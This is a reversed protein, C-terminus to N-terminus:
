EVWPLRDIAREVSALLEDRDVGTKVVVQLGNYLVFLFNALERATEQSFDLQQSQKIAEEFINVFQERNKAVFGLASLCVGAMETTSNVIYCGKIQDNAHKNELDITPILLNKLSTKLDPQDFLYARLYNLNEEQYRKLTLDYLARKGGFSNYISSRSIGLSKELDSISTASYGREWFLDRAKNLVESEDFIPNAPM